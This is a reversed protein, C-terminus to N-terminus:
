EHSESETAIGAEDLAAICDELVVTRDSGTISNVSQGDVFAAGHWTVAGSLIVLGSPIQPEVRVLVSRLDPQETQESM